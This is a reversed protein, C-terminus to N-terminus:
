NCCVGLAKNTCKSATNYLSNQSQSSFIERSNFRQKSFVFLYVFFFGLM